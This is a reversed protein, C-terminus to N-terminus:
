SVISQAQKLFDVYQTEERYDSFMAIFAAMDSNVGCVEELYDGFAEQLDEALETFEPGQYEMKPLTGQNEHVYEATSAGTTSLGEVKVQGYESFCAFNLSKGAKTVTVTFRVPASPEEDDEEEDDYDPEEEVELTDQCHFSVQIKNGSSSEIKFFNTTAGDEVIKWSKEITKKLDSLETPMEMNGTDVEEQEERALLELLTEKSSFSRKSGFGSALNNSAATVASLPMDPTTGTCFRSANVSGPASGMAGAFTRPRSSAMWRRLMSQAIKM